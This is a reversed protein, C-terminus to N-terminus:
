FCFSLNIITNKLHGIGEFVTVFVLKKKDSNIVKHFEGKPVLIVSGKEVNYEQKDIKMKGRGDIFFHVESAGIHSHGRTEQAPKLETLSVTLGNLHLDYITYRENDAVLM